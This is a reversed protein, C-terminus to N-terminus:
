RNPNGGIFPAAHLDRSSIQQCPARSCRRTQQNSRNRPLQQVVNRYPALVPWPNRLRGTTGNFHLSRKACETRVTAPQAHAHRPSPRDAHSAHASMRHSAASQARESESCMLQVPVRLPQSRHTTFTLVSCPVIRLGSECFCALVTRHRHNIAPRSARCRRHQFIERPPLTPFIAHDRTWFSARQKWVFSPGSHRRLGEPIVQLICPSNHAETGRQEIAPTRRTAEAPQPGLPGRAHAIRTQPQNLDFGRKRAGGRSCPLPNRNSVSRLRSQGSPQSTHQKFLFQNRCM